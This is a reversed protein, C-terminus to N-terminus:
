VPTALPALTAVVEQDDLQPFDVYHLGIARFPDPEHLCIVRDVERRLTTLTDHPAVPVALVLHAARRRRLAKLAARMTTGTAIGDDVVIVTAAEVELPRRGHLYLARLREIERREIKAQEDIYAGSAGLAQSAGEDFGIWRVQKWWCARARQKLFRHLAVARDDRGTRRVVM